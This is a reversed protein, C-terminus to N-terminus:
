LESQQLVYSEAASRMNARFESQSAVVDTLFFYIVAILSAVIIALYAYGAVDQVLQIESFGNSFALLSFYIHEPLTEASQKPGCESAKACARVLDGGTAASLGYGILALSALIGALRHFVRLNIRTRLGDPVIFDVSEALLTQELKKVLGWSKPRENGIRQVQIRLETSLNALSDFFKDAPGLCQAFVRPRYSNVDLMIAALMVLGVTAVGTGAPVSGFVISRADDGHLILDVAVLAVVILWAGWAFCSFIKEVILQAKQEAEEKLENTEEQTDGAIKEIDEGSAKAVYRWLFEPRSKADAKVLSKRIEVQRKKRAKREQRSLEFKPIILSGNSM